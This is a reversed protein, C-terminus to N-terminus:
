NSTLPLKGRGQSVPGKPFPRSNTSSGSSRPSKLATFFSESKKLAKSDKILKEEIDEGFLHHNSAKDLAKSQQKM